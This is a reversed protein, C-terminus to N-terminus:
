IVVLLLHAQFEMLSFYFQRRRKNIDIEIHVLFSQYCNLKRRWAVREKSLVSLSLSNLQLSLAESQLYYSGNRTPFKVGNLYFKQRTLYILHDM